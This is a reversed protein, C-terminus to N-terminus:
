SGNRGQGGAPADLLDPSIGADRSVSVAWATVLGRPKQDNILIREGVPLDLILASFRLGWRALQTETQHRYREPRASLLVVVDGEPLARFFDIVGPLPTEDASRLYGNHAFVVGDVDILWTKPLDSLPPLGPM